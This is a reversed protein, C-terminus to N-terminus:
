NEIYINEARTYAEIEYKNNKYGKKFMELYYLFIHVFPERMIQEVHILEHQLDKDMEKPGMMVVNGLAMGRTGNSQPLWNFWWFSKVKFVVAGAKRHLTISVPISIFALLVGLITWPVNLVYALIKM